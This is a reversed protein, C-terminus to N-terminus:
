ESANFDEGLFEELADEAICVAALGLLSAAACLLQWRTGM